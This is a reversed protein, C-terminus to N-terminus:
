SETLRYDDFRPFDFEIPFPSTRRFLASLFRFLMRVYRIIIWGIALLALLGLVTIVLFSWQYDTQLDLADGSAFM